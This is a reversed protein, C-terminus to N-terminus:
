ADLAHQESANGRSDRRSRVARHLDDATAARAIGIAEEAYTMTVGAVMDVGAEALAAIQTAHYTQAEDPTMREDARYGDGRPGLVGNVVVPAAASLSALSLASAGATGANGARESVQDGASSPARFM